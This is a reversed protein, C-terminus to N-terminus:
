WDAATANFISETIEKIIEQCLQTEVESLMRTSPFVQYASFTREFDKSPFAVNVYQVRVSVTLKTEAALGDSQMSMHSIDYGTIEGSLQMDGGSSIMRLRTQRTYLERLAESFQQSLLPNVLAARNPFDSVSITKTKSYDISAGSFKYSVSCATLFIVLTISIYKKM